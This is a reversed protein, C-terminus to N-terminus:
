LVALLMASHVQHVNEHVLDDVNAWSQLMSDYQWDQESVILYTDSSCCVPM